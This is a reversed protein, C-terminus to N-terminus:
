QSMSVLALIVLAIIEKTWGRTISIAAYAAVSLWILTALELM